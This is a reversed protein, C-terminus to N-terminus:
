SQAPVIEPSGGANWTGTRALAPSYDPASWRLPVAARILRGDQPEFRLLRQAGPFAAIAPDDLVVAASGTLTLLDGSDFDIFLLGALPNEAINGLTNFYLNGAFDPVTLVDGAAEATIRVFGPRGGRHSVDVGERAEGNGAQRSATAIFFTDAAAIVARAAASLRPGEQQVPHGPASLSAPPATFRPQRAQIYKPCNGFSQDVTVTIRGDQLAAVQGNMRNRRRTPLEIGLLGLPAGQKLHGALPDAAAPRADIVLTRDDPSAVFGPAGVLLSAWPRGTDDLSGALLMPLKTFLERHQDPMHDRIVQRGVQAMRGRVGALLQMAQEGAHFADPVLGTAM